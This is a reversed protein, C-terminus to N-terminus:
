CTSLEAGDIASGLSEKSLIIDFSHNANTNANVAMEKLESLQKLSNEELSDVYHTTIYTRIKSNSVSWSNLFHFTCVENAYLRLAYVIANWANDSFDTPILISRKM